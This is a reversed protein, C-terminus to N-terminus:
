HIGQVIAAHSLGLLPKVRKGPNMLNRAPAFAFNPSPFLCLALSCRRAGSITRVHSFPPNKQPGQVCRGQDGPRLPKGAVCARPVKQEVFPKKKTRKGQRNPRRAPWGAWGAQWPPSGAKKRYHSRVCSCDTLCARRSRSETRVKHTRAGVLWWPCPAWSPWVAGFRSSVFPRRWM